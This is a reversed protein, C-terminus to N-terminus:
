LIGLKSWVINCPQKNNSGGQNLAYLLPIRKDEEEERRYGNDAGNLVICSDHGQLEAKYGVKRLVRRRARIKCCVLHFWQHVLVKLPVAVKSSFIHIYHLM